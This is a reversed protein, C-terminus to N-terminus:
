RTDHYTTTAARMDQVMRKLEPGWYSTQQLEGVVSEQRAILEELDIEEPAHRYRRFDKQLGDIRQMTGDASPDDPMQRLKFNIERWRSNLHIAAVMDPEKLRAARDERAPNQFESIDGDEVPPAADVAATPQTEPPGDPMADAPMPDTNASNIPVIEDSSGSRPTRTTTEVEPATDVPMMSVGVWPILVAALAVGVIGAGAWIMWQKM